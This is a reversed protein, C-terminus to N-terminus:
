NKWGEDDPPAFRARVEDVLSDFTRLINKVSSPSTKMAVAMGTVGFFAGVAMWMAVSVAKDMFHQETQMKKTVEPLIRLPVVLFDGLGQGAVDFGILRVSFGGEKHPDLGHKSSLIQHTFEFM